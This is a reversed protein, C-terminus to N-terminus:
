DPSLFVSVTAAELLKFHCSLCASCSLERSGCRDHGGEVSKEEMCCVHVKGFAFGEVYETKLFVSLSEICDELGKLRQSQVM